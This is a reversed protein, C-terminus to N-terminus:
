FLLQNLSTGEAVSIVLIGNLSRFSSLENTLLHLCFTAGHKFTTVYKAYKLTNPWYEETCVSDFCYFDLSFLRPKFRARKLRLDATRRSTFM